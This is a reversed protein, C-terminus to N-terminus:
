RRTRWRDAVQIAAPAGKRAAEAFVTDRDRSIIKIGPHEKLWAEVTECKADKLLEIPRRTQLDVLITAYNQGKKIAWEDIGLVTPTAAADISAKRSLHLLTDASVSSTNLLQCLLATGEGGLLLALTQLHHDLRATRRAYAAIAPHLRESFVKRKCEEQECFFRRVALQLLVQKDAWPLDAIRRQYRSHIKKSPDRCVPCHATPHTTTLSLIVHKEQYAIGTVQLGAVPPLLFDIKL